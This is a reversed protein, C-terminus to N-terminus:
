SSTTDVDRDVEVDERRVDGGVTRTETQTEKNLRVGGTVVAEKGVVPEERMVPVEVEQEQFANTPADTEAANVREISVQERELAVPVEEHETHVVKRLRVRGAEVEQTGVQLNEESLTVQPQTDTTTGTEYNTDTGYDTGTTGATAFSDATATTGTGMTNEGMGTPSETMSRETGYYSYVDNEETPSLEHDTPFSPADKIQSEPYPFTIQGEGIQANATPIIHTKGFLWGTKVGVFELASTADDVWVSDVSGIKNGGNDYVDYGFLQDPASTTQQNM